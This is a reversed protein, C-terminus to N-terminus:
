ETMTAVPLWAGGIWDMSPTSMPSLSALVDQTFASAFGSDHVNEMPVDPPPFLESTMQVPQPPPPAETTTTQAEKVIKYYQMITSFIHIACPFFPFDHFFFCNSFTSYTAINMIYM